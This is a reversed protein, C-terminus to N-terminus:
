NEKETQRSKASIAAKWGRGFGGMHAFGGGWIWLYKGLLFRLAFFVHQLLKKSVFTNISAQLM